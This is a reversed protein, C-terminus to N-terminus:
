RPSSVYGDTDNHSHGTLDGRSDTVDGSLNLNGEINVDGKISFTGSAGGSGTTTITGQITTNGELLISPSKVITNKATINANQTTINIDSLTVINITNPNLIELTSSRVDYSIITGDEYETVEKTQSSGTPEKCKTNFISGVAYKFGGDRLQHVIAQEGVRPPSFSRKFSNAFQAYPIMKTKTGLYEVRVLSKDESVECITGIFQM